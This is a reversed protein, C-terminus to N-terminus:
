PVVRCFPFILRDYTPNVSYAKGANGAERNEYLDAIRLLIAARLPAPIPGPAATFLLPYAGEASTVTGPAIPLPSRRDGIPTWEYDAAALAVGTDREVLERAASIFAGILADDGTHIVSLHEKAEALSVPEATAPTITRLM